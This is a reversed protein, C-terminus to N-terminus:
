IPIAMGGWGKPTPLAIKITTSGQFPTGDNLLGTLTLTVTGFKSQAYNKLILDKVAQRDFKVMLDPIGDSDFDEIATPRPEVAVTDNLMITSVKINHVDYGGPFEIHATIWKGESKLNLTNPDVNITGRVAVPQPPIFASADITLTGQVRDHPVQFYGTRDVIDTFTNALPLTVTPEGLSGQPQRTIRFSIVAVLGDTGNWSGSTSAAAVRFYVAGTYPPSTVMHYPPGSADYFGPNLGYLISPGTLVGDPQGLKNVFGTPVAYTLINGFYLAIEVGGVGKPINDVTANKLHIQVNFSLNVPSPAPPTELGNVSGNIDTLPPVAVPEVSFYVPSRASAPKMLLLSAMLMSVVLVIAIAKRVKREGKEGLYPINL